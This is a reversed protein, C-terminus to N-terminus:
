TRHPGFAIISMGILTIGLGILDYSDPIQKEFLWLWVISMLVYIGGYSAYVRGAHAPHLTLLWAFVALSVASPFFLLASKNLRLCAYVCYCGLIEAIATVVFLFFTRSIIMM